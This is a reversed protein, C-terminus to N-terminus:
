FGKPVFLRWQAVYEPEDMQYTLYFDYEMPFQRLLEIQSARYTGAHDLYYGISQHYPYTYNLKRLYAALKNVSFQGAAEKFAKAVEHVGGSYVPRVTADILTREVDTVRLPGSTDDTEIEVVGLSKTNRGNLMYIRRGKYDVFNKSTRCKSRFARDIAEQTLEGGGGRMKQEVNLYITKPIQETFGHLRVATYHCFYADSNLSELLDFLSVDGWTYRLQTRNPFPLKVQRLPSLRLM